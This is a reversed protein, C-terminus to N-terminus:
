AAAHGDPLAHDDILAQGDPLRSRAVTLIEQAVRAPRRLHTVTYRLVLYGHRILLNQRELDHDLAARGQHCDLGDVEVALRPIRLLFDPRLERGELLLTPQFEIPGVGHDRWLRALLPELVSDAPRTGLPRTDLYRRLVGTGNRGRGGVEDLVQRLGHVSVLKHTLALEVVSSFMTPSLVAGADVLTRAPKTVPVHHRVTCHADDLDRSRHVVASPLHVSQQRRITVEIPQPGDVLGWLLLAARHSAVAGADAALTAALLDQEFRPPSGAARFVTAHVQRLSGDALLLRLQHPTVGAAVLQQHTVLGHRASAINDVIALPAQRTRTAM